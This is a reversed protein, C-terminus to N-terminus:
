VVAMVVIVVSPFLKCYATHGCREFRSMGQPNREKPAIVKEVWFRDCSSMDIQSLVTLFVSFGSAWDLKKCDTLLAASVSKNDDMYVNLLARMSPYKKQIAIAQAPSVKSYSSFVEVKHLFTIIAFNAAQLTSYILVTADNWTSKKIRDKDFCGKPVILGNAHVSLWEITGGVSGSEIVSTDIETVICKSAFKGSEWKRKEKDLKKMEAQEAKMAEKQM